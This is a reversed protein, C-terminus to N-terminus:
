HTSTWSIQSPQGSREEMNSPPTQPRSWTWSEIEESLFIQWAHNTFILSVPVYQKCMSLEGIIETFEPFKRLIQETVSIARFLRLFWEKGQLAGNGSWYLCNETLLLTRQDSLEPWQFTALSHTHSLDHVWLFCTLLAKVWTEPALHFYPGFFTVM